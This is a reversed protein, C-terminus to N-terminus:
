LIDNIKGCFVGVYDRVNTRSWFLVCLFLARDAGQIVFLETLIRRNETMIMIYSIYGVM